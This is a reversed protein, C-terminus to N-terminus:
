PKERDRRAAGIERITGHQHAFVSWPMAGRNHILDTLASQVDVPFKNITNIESIKTKIRNALIPAIEDENIKSIDIEWLEAIIHLFGLDMKKFNQVLERM